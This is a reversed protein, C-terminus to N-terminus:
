ADRAAGWFSGIRSKAAPAVPFALTPGATISLVYEGSKLLEPQLRVIYNSEKEIDYQTTAALTDASVLFKPNSDGPSGQEWLDLYVAFGSSPKTSVNITLKEGRRARFVLGVARPEEAAFYGSESYPLDVTVPSTISQRAASFWLRGLATESLGANKIRQGYDDHPSKKGFLGSPGPTTCSHILFVLPILVLSSIPVSTKNIM